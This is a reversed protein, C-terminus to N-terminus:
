PKIIEDVIDDSLKYADDPSVLGDALRTIRGMIRRFWLNLFTYPRAERVLDAMLSSLRVQVAVMERVVMRPPISEQTFGYHDMIKQDLWCSPVPAFSETSGMVILGVVRRMLGGEVDRFSYVSCGPLQERVYVEAARFLDEKSFSRTFDDLVTVADPLTDINMVSTVFKPLPM